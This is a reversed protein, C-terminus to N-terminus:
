PALVARYFRRPLQPAASDPHLWPAASVVNTALPWWSFLDDGAELVIRQGATGQVTLQIVDGLRTVEPISPPLLSPGIALLQPAYLHRTRAGDTLLVCVAYNGPPLLVADTALNFDLLAVANTGTGPTTFEEALIENANFPNLDPDLLVRVTLVPVAFAGSQHHLRLGTAGGAALANTGAVEFRLPNPWVGSNVPLAARNTPSLGAGLDWRQNFGDRIRGLGAGAPEADSLRNGGVILSHRYGANTGRAEAATWWNTRQSAGITAGDVTIPTRLDMTGHYWHHVDSHPSSYGGPLSTLRRNYAGPIARGIPVLFGGINQWYNDAFLVSAYVACTGDVATYGPYSNGDNNLPHPDLLTLQDVWVGEAGLLRAVECMLSAGRSHGALHLPLGALPRNLGPILNTQLLAPVLREAVFTTSYDASFPDGAFDSWDFAVLIEGTDAAAPSVGNLNNVTFSHFGGGINVMRVELRAVNTLGLRTLRAPVAELMPVVWPGVASNFGHTIVTVGAARASPPQLLLVALLALIARLSALCVSGSFELSRRERGAPV